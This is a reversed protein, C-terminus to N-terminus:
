DEVTLESFMGETLLPSINAILYKKIDRVHHFQLIKQVHKRADYLSIGRIFKNVKPISHAEMSLAEVDGMGLLLYAYFPDASMKGCVSVAINNQNAAKIVMHLLRIVAPNLPQYLHAVKQNGRDIALLYQILDNTGISFFDVYQAFQEAMLAASPTEIMMGVEIDRNFNVKERELERMAGALLSQAKRIEEISSVMPFMIKLEGYVSARLIARLQARFVAPNRLCYRIARLGLAPNDEPEEGFDSPVKDGGLDLTRIIAPRPSISEAVKRYDEFQEEEDPLRNDRVFLFETRYLGIGEAGQKAAIHIDQSSEINMMLKVVKGDLTVPPLKSEKELERDHYFFLQRKRNYIQFQQDTPHVLVMGTLADIIVADGTEVAKTIKPIGVVAPIWLSSAIIGTHSTKGGTETVFGLVFKSSMQATDFPTLDHAFVVVPETLNSLSEEERGMLEHLLKDVVTEIDGVREKFYPDRIKEFRQALKEYTTKLAWEANVLDREIAAKTQDILTPDSLLQLHPHLIDRLNNSLNKVGAGISQIMKGRTSEVAAMFRDTEDKVANRAIAREMVSLRFRNLVYAKGIAIGPSALIGKFIKM